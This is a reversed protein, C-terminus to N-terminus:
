RLKELFKVVSQWHKFSRTRYKGVSKLEQNVILDNYVLYSVEYKKSIPCIDVSIDPNQTYVTGWLYGFSWCEILLGKSQNALDRRAHEKETLPELDSQQSM